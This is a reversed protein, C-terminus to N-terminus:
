EGEPVGGGGGRGRRDRDRDWDRDGYRGTERGAFGRSYEGRFGRGSMGMGPGMGRGRRSPAPPPPVGMASRGEGVGAGRGTRAGTAPAIEGTLTDPPLIACSVYDGVIFKADHLTKNADDDDDGDNEEEGDNDDGNGNGDVPRGAGIVLSGLDKVTYRPPRDPGGRTDAFIIRFVLRTGIAPDPLVAPSAAAVHRALEALTCSKWTYVAIHPPLHAPSVFEDPRCGAKTEKEIKEKRHVSSSASVFRHFAGTRYFLKLLFPTTIPHDAAPPPLAM